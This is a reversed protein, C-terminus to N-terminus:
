VLLRTLRRQRWVVLGRAELTRCLRNPFLDGRGPVRGYWVARDHVLGGGDVEDVEFALQGHGADEILEAQRCAQAAAARLAGTARPAALSAGVTRGDTMVASPSSM